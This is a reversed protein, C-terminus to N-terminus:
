PIYSKLEYSGLSNLSYYCTNISFKMFRSFIISNNLLRVKGRKEFRLRMEEQFSELFFLNDYKPHVLPSHILQM